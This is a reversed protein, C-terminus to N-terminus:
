EMDLIKIIEGIYLTHYDANQYWTTDIEQTHFSAKDMAQAYLKKCLLTTKAQLFYPIGNDYALNLQTHPIKDEDRGSTTGMYTLMEKYEDSFFTISFENATDIFEKTYRQPRVYSYAVLKGWLFGIGGWSITMCNVDLHKRATLLAGNVAFLNHINVDFDFPSIEKRM